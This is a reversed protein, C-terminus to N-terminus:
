RLDAGAACGAAADCHDDTHGWVTFNHIATVHVNAAAHTSQYYAELEKWLRGTGSTERIAAKDTMTWDGDFKFAPLFIVDDEDGRLVMNEAGAHVGFYGVFERGVHRVFGRMSRFNGFETKDVSYTSLDVIYEVKYPSGDYQSEKEVVELDFRKQPTDSNLNTM